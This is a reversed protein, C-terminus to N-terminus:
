YIKRGHSRRFSLDLEPRVPDEDTNCDKLEVLKAGKIWDFLTDVKRNLIQKNKRIRAKFRPRFKKASRLTDNKYYKSALKEKVTKLLERM